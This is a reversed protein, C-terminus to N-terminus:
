WCHRPIGIEGCEEWSKFKKKRKITAMSTPPPKEPPETTFFGGALAPFALSTPEIM